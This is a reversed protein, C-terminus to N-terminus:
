IFIRSKIRHLIYQRKTNNSHKIQLSHQIGCTHWEHLNIHRRTIHAAQQILNHKNEYQQHGSAFKWDALSHDPGQIVCGTM